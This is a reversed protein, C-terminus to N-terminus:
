LYGSLNEIVLTKVLPDGNQKDPYSHLSERSRKLSNQQEVTPPPLVCLLRHLLHSIAFLCSTFSAPNLIM